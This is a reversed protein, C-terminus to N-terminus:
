SPCNWDVYMDVNEVNLSLGSTAAADWSVTIRLTCEELSLDPPIDYFGKSSFIHATTPSESTGSDIGGLIDPGYLTAVTTGGSDVVECTMAFPSINFSGVFNWGLPTGPSPNIVNIIVRVTQDGSSTLLCDPVPTREIARIPVDLVLPPEEPGIAGDTPQVLITMDGFQDPIDGDPAVFCSSDRCSSGVSDFNWSLINLRGETVPPTGSCDEACGVFDTWFCDSPAVSIYVEPTLKIAVYTQM